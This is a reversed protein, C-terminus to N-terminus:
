EAQAVQVHKSLLKHTHVPFASAPLPLGPYSIAPYSIAPYSLAPYSMGSYPPAAAFSGPVDAGDSGFSAFATTACAALAVFYGLFLRAPM